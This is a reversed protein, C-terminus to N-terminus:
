CELLTRVVLSIECDRKRHSLLLEKYCVFQTRGKEGKCRFATLPGTELVNHEKGLMFCHVFVLFRTVRFAIDLCDCFM